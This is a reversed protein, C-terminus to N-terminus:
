GETSVPWEDVFQKYETEITNWNIKTYEKNEIKGFATNLADYANEFGEAQTAEVAVKIAFPTEFDTVEVANGKNDKYTIKTIKNNEDRTVECDVTKDLYIGTIAETATVEGRKLATRYTAVYVNYVEAEEGEGIKTTYFNWKGAGNGQYGKGASYEPLWSWQGDAVSESTFNWHLFNQSANFEPDGDDFKAPIAVHVRVYSDNTGINEVYVDKNVKEGPVMDTAAEADFVEWLDVEVDGMTFENTQADTDTFYALTGGIVATAALAVVLLLSLMKKKM